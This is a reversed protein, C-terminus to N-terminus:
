GNQKATLPQDLATPRRSTAAVLPDLRSYGSAVIHGSAGAIFVQM